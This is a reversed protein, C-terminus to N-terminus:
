ELLKRFAEVETVPLQCAFNECVYATAKGDLPKMTALIPNWAALEARNANTVM